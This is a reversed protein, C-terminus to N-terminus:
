SLFLVKYTEALIRYQFLTNLKYSSTVLFYAGNLRPLGTSSLGEGALEGGKEFFRGKASEKM